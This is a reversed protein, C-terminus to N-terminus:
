GEEGAGGSPEDFGFHFEMSPAEGGEGSIERVASVALATVTNDLLKHSAKTVTTWAASAAGPAHALISPQLPEAPAGTVERLACHGDDCTLFVRDHAIVAHRVAAAFTERARERGDPGWFVVIGDVHSVQWVNGWSVPVFAFATCDDAVVTIFATGSPTLGASWVGSNTKSWLIRLVSLQEAQWM